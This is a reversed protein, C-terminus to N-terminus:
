VNRGREKGHEMELNQRYQQLTRASPDTAGATWKPMWFYPILQSTGGYYKEYITRYYYAEKTVPPNFRYMSKYTNFEDDKVVVDVQEQIIQYWSKQLNSVGDSFAEKSRWLIEDPLLNTHEFAKRLLYKEIHHPSQLLEFPIESLVYQILAHDSFPVRAELGQSSICRDSRLCDFFHIHNILRCCEEHFATANPANKFYLYGGFLEDSYEGSLVVKCDSHEKIYRSVLYHGVSARVSTIDYSEIIQITKEIAQLFEQETLEITTHKSGIHQAVIKAYHLDTSHKMGISYTELVGLGHARYIQSAISAVLSSDLGGSLLSAIPRDSLEVRKRVADTVLRRLNHLITDFSHCPNFTLEDNYCLHYQKHLSSSSEYSHSTIWGPKVQEILSTNECLSYLGKVESSLILCDSTSYQFLPRVGVRDRCVVVTREVTDYVVFAFEGDLSQALMDLCTGYDHHQKLQLYKLLIVECDSSTKLENTQEFEQKLFPYNYIEGNCMLYVGDKYFPQNGNDSIDNIKLRHFGMFCTTNLHVMVSNNPGRAKLQQFGEYCKNIPLPGGGGNPQLMFLIGCM